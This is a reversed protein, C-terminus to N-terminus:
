LFRFTPFLFIAINNGPPAPYIPLFNNKILDFIAIFYIITFLFVCILNSKRNLMRLFTIYDERTFSYDFKM